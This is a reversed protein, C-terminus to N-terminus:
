IEMSSVDIEEKDLKERLGEFGGSVYLEGNSYIQPMTRHGEAILFERADTDEEINVENFDIEKSSLLKKAMTCFHCNNKTYVTLITM